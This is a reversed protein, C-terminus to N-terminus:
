TRNKGKVACQLFGGLTAFDEPDFEDLEIEIGFHDELHILIEVFGLSDILGSGVLSLEDNIEETRIELLELAPKLKDLIFDRIQQILKEDSNM